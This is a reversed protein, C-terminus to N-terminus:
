LEGFIGNNGQAKKLPIGSSPKSGLLPRRRPLKSSSPNTPYPRSPAQFPEVPDDDEEDASSWDASSTVDRDERADEDAQEDKADADDFLADVTQKTTAQQDLCQQLPAPLDGVLPIMDVVNSYVKGNYNNEEVTIEVAKNTISEIQFEEGIEPLIGFDKALKVLKGDANWYHPAKYYAPMTVGYQENFALLKFQFEEYRNGKNSTVLQLDLTEIIAKYTGPMLREPLRYITKM